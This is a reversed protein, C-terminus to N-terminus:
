SFFFKFFSFNIKNRNIKYFFHGTRFFSTRNWFLVTQKWFLMNRNRNLMTRNWFFCSIPFKTYLFEIVFGNQGAVLISLFRHLFQTNQFKKKNTISGKLFNNWFLVYCVKMNKMNIHEKFTCATVGVFFLVLLPWSTYSMLTSHKEM